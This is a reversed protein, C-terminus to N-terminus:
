TGVFFLAEICGVGILAIVILALFCEIAFVILSKNM